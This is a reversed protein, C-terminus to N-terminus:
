LGWLGYISRQEMITGEFLRPPWGTRHEWLLIETHDSRMLSHLTGLLINDSKIDRHVCQMSHIYALPKLTERAIYAMQAENLQISSFENLVDTLCGGGMFEMVVWVEEESIKFSDFYKIINPHTSFKMVQIETVLLNLNDKRIEMKKVAVKKATRIDMAVFVQGAAGEGIKKWMTFLM